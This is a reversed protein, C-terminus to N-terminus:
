LAGKNEAKHKNMQRKFAKGQGMLKVDAVGKGYYFCVVTVMIWGLKFSDALEVVKDILTAVDFEFAYGLVSAWLCVQFALIFNIVFAFAIWRRALNMGQTANLWKLKWNLLEQKADSKEQDTHFSEDIFSGVGSAMDLVKDANSSFLASFWSM